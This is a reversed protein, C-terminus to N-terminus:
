FLFQAVLYKCNCIIHGPHSSGSFLDLHSWGRDQKPIHNWLLAAHSLAIPWLDYKTQDPWIILVHLLIAMEWLTNSTVNLFAIRTIHVLAVSVWQKNFNQLYSFVVNDRHYSQTSANYLAAICEFTRKAMITEGANLSSQHQMDVYESGHYFFPWAM